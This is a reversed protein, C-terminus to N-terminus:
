KGLVLKPNTEDQCSGKRFHKAKVATRPNISSLVSGPQNGRFKGVHFKSCKDEQCTFGASISKGRGM